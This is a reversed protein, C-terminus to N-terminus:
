KKKYNNILEEQKKQHRLIISLFQFTCCIIFFICTFIDIQVFHLSFLPYFIIKRKGQSIKITSYLSFSGFHYHITNFARWYTRERNSYYLLHCDMFPSLNRNTPPFATKKEYYQKLSNFINWWLYGQNVCISNAPVLM